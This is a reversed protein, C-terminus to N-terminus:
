RKVKYILLLTLVILGIFISHKWWNNQEFSVRTRSGILTIGAWYYPHIYESGQHETVYNQKAKQLALDKSNDLLEKYFDAMIQQTTQDNATWLTGLVSRAGASLFGTAMSFIGEGKHFEGKATECASLAVMETNLNLLKIEELSLTSEAHINDENLIIYPKVEKNTNSSAHTMLHILPYDSAYKIFTDKSAFRGTYLRSKPIVDLLAQSEKITYPIINRLSKFTPLYLATSDVSVSELEKEIFYQINASPSYSISKNEIWFKDRQVLSEFSIQHLLGDPSIIFRSVNEMTTQGLIINSIESGIKLTQELNSPENLLVIYENILSDLLGKDVNNLYTEESTVALRHYDLSGEFFLLHCTNQDLSKQYDTLTIKRETLKRSESSKIENRLEDQKLQLSTLMSQTSITSDGTRIAKEANLLNVQNNLIKNKLDQPASKYDISHALEKFLDLSKITEFVQFVEESNIEKQKKLSRLKMDLWPYYRDVKILHDELRIPRNMKTRIDSTLKNLFVLENTYDKLGNYCQAKYLSVYEKYYESIAGIEHKSILLSDIIKFEELADLFRNDDRLFTVKQLLATVDYQWGLKIEKNNFFSRAEKISAYAKKDLNLTKYYRAYLLENYGIKRIYNKNTYKKLVEICEEALELENDELAKDATEYIASRAYTMMRNAYSDGRENFRRIYHNAVLKNYYIQKERNGLGSYAKALFSYRMNHNPLKVESKYINDCQIISKHVYDLATKYKGQQLLCKALNLLAYNYITWHEPHDILLEGINLSNIFHSEAVDLHQLHLAMNGKAYELDDYKVISDIRNAFTLKPYIRSAEKISKIQQSIDGQDEAVYNTEIQLAFYENPCYNISTNNDSKFLYTLQKLSDLSLSIDRENIQNIKDCLNTQANINAVLSLLLLSFCVRKMFFRFM